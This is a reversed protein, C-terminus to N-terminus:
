APAVLRQRLRAITADDLVGDRRWAAHDVDRVADRFVRELTTGKGALYKDIKVGADGMKHHAAM